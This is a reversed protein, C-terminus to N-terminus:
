GDLDEVSIKGFGFGTNKGLGFIESFNLLSLEYSTFYGELDMHGVCGGLKMKQKQRASYRDYDKWYICINESKESLKKTLHTDVNNIGYKSSLIEARRVAAYLFDRYTIKDTYKGNIKLRLPSDMNISIKKYIESTGTSLEWDKPEPIGLEESEGDNVMKGDAFISVIDYKTKRRFLGSEGGKKFAYFIYPFYDIGRGFLTLRFHLSDLKKDADESCSITFPHSVKDRGKLFENDKSIPSEFIYSYACQFKLPCEECKRRRLVCAFSKLEKGLVSRLLFAPFVDSYTTESFQITFDYKQYKIFM